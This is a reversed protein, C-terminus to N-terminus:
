TLVYIPKLYNMSWSLLVFAAHNENEVEKKNANKMKKQNLNARNGLM